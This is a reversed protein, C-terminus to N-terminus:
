NLKVIEFEKLIEMMKEGDVSTPYELWVIKVNKKKAKEELEERFEIDTITGIPNSICIYGADVECIAFAQDLRPIIGEVQMTPFVMATRIGMDFCAKFASATRKMNALKDKTDPLIVILVGRRKKKM